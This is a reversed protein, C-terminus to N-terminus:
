KSTLILIDIIAGVLGGFFKGPNRMRYYQISEVEHMFIYETNSPCDVVMRRMVPLIRQEILIALRKSKIITNKDTMIHDISTLPLRKSNEFGTLLVYIYGYDFGILEAQYVDDTISIEMTDGIEPLDINQHRM